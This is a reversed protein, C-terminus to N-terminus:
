FRFINRASEWWWISSKYTYEHFQEDVICTSTNGRHNKPTDDDSYRSHQNESSRFRKFRTSCSKQGHEQLCKNTDKVLKEVRADILNWMIIIHQQEQSLCSGWKYNFLSLDCVQTVATNACDIVGNEECAPLSQEGAIAPCRTSTDRTITDRTSTDRTSPSSWMFLHGTVCYNHCTLPGESRVHWTHRTCISIHLKWHFSQRWWVLEQTKRFLCVQQSYTAM